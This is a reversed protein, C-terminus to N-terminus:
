TDSGFRRNPPQQHWCNTRLSAWSYILTALPWVHIWPRVEIQLWMDDAFQFCYCTLIIEILDYLFTSSPTSNPDRWKELAFKCAGKGEAHPINTYLASVDIYVLHDRWKELAFKCAGKGEAHPINTYLASVDM